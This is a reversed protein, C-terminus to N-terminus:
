DSKGGCIVRLVPRGTEAPRPPAAPTPPAAPGPTGAGPANEADAEDPAARAQRRLRNGPKKGGRDKAKGRAKRDIERLKKQQMASLPESLDGKMPDAFASGYTEIRSELEELFSQEWDSLPPGLGQDALEAARRLKRLARRKKREDIDRPM